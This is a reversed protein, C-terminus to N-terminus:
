DVEIANCLSDEIENNTFGMELLAGKQEDKLDEIVSKHYDSSDKNWHDEIGWLSSTINDSIGVDTKIETKVVIGIFSWQNNSLAEMNEYDQIAYKKYEPSGIKEGNDPPYYFNYERPINPINEDDDLDEYFKNLSRIICGPKLKGGYEGLYSTDPDIDMEKTITTKGLTFTTCKKM